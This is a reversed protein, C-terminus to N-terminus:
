RAVDTIGENCLATLPVLKLPKESDVDCIVSNNNHNSLVDYRLEDDRSWDGSLELVYTTSEYHCARQNGATRRPVTAYNATVDRTSGAHVIDYM